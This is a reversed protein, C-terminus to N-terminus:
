LQCPVWQLSLTSDESWHLPMIIVLCIIGGLFFPMSLLYAVVQILCVNESLHLWGFDNAFIFPRRYYSYSLALCMKFHMLSQIWWWWQWFLARLKGGFHLPVPLSNQPWGRVDTSHNLCHPRLPWSTTTTSKGTKGDFNFRHFTIVPTWPFCLHVHSQVGCPHSTPFSYIGKLTERSVNIHCGSTLHCLRYLSVCVPLKKTVCIHFTM